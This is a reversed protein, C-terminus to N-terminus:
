ARGRVERLLNGLTQKSQEWFPKEYLPKTPLAHLLEILESPTSYFFSADRLDEEDAFASHLLLPKRHTFASSFAGTIQYQLYKKFYPTSPHILPLVADCARLYAHYDRFSLGQPFVQFYSLIGRDRLHFAVTKWDSYPAEAPGLLLFRWAPMKSAPPLAQILDLYARRKLEVRGPIAIWKEHNPKHLTPLRAWLSAPLDTLHLVHAKSRWIGPLNRYLKERLVFFGSLHWAISWGMFSLQHLKATDHVIGIQPLGKLLRSLRLTLRGYATNHLVLEIKEEQVWTMMEELSDSLSFYRRVEDLSTYLSQYLSPAAVFVEIPDPQAQAHAILALLTEHHNLSPEILLLRM